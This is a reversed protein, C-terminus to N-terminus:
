GHLPTSRRNKNPRRRPSGPWRKACCRDTPSGGTAARSASRIAPRRPLGRSRSRPRGASRRGSDRSGLLMRRPRGRARRVLRALWGAGCLDILATSVYGDAAPLRGALSQRRKRAHGPAQALLAADGDILTWATGKPLFPSLWRHLAGTGAGLDAVRARPGLARAFRRALGIDRAAADASARLALWDASFGSM